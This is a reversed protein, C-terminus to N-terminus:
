AFVLEYGKKALRHRPEYSLLVDWGTGSLASDLRERDSSSLDRFLDLARQLSWLTYSGVMRTVSQGRLNVECRGISRPLNKADAGERDAWDEFASVVVQILPAADKGM